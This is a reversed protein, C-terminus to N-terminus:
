WFSKDELACIFMDPFLEGGQSHKNLPLGQSIPHVSSPLSPYSLSCTCLPWGTYDLVHLKLVLSSENRLTKIMICSKKSLLSSKLGYILESQKGLSINKSRKAKHSYTHTHGPTPRWSQQAGYSKSGQNHYKLSLLVTSRHQSTVRQGPSCKWEQVIIDSGASNGGCCLAQPSSALPHTLTHRATLSRKCLSSPRTSCFWLLCPETKMPRTKLSEGDPDTNNLDIIFVCM